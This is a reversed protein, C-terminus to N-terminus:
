GPIVVGEPAQITQYPSSNRDAYEVEEGAISAGPPEMAPADRHLFRSDLLERTYPHAPREFIQHVDGAEVIRGEKMVYVFDAKEAVVGLDHTILLIALGSERRLRDLEELIQAQIMVDLATTPEDAILLRAGSVLALAIMVRQCMGGSIQFPYRRLLGEPEPLGVRGLQDIAIMRAERRSVRRHQRVTEIMQTGIPLVPNLSNGPDQLIMAMERGRTRRLQGPKMRLLDKEGLWIEGAAIRGPRGLLGFVSLATASKGSGSEGILAVIDGAHVDLSVEQVARPAREGAGFHVSLQRIRLLAQNKTM